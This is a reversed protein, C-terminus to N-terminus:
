RTADPVVGGENEFRLIEQAEEALRASLQSPEGARPAITRVTRELSLDALVGLLLAAGAIAPARRARAIGYSVLGFGAVGVLFRTARHWHNLRARDVLEHAM